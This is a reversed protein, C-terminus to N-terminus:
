AFIADRRRVFSEIPLRDSPVRVQDTAERVGQGVDAACHADSGVTLLRGGLEQYRAVIDPGPYTERPNQRLGSTNIELGTGTEVMAVLIADIQEAYREYRFPGYREVGVRKVVDLHALADFLGSQAALRVCEFYRGYAKEENGNLLTDFVFDQGVYHVSGLVLDFTKGDLFAVIADKFQPQYGIEIGSQIQLRDGYRRWAADLDRMYRGYDFFGYSVDFPELYLHDTFAIGDLGRRIAARCLADITDHGDFSHGTHVHRDFYNV